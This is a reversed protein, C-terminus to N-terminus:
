SSASATSSNFTTQRYKPELFGHVCVLAAQLATADTLNVRVYRYDSAALAEPNIEIWIMKNDSVSAALSIYETATRATIAGWTNDGLAGSLRYNFAIAAETGAPDTAAYVSVRAEDAATDSTIAGYSVLFGARNVNKLDMYATNTETTVIDKPELLMVINEYGVYPNAM